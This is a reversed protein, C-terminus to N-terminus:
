GLVHPIQNRSRLLHGIAGSLAGIVFGIGCFLLKAAKGLLRAAAVVIRVALRGAFILVRCLTAFALEILSVFLLVLSVM